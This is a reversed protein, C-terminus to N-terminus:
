LYKAALETLFTCAPCIGPLSRTAIVTHWKKGDIFISPVYDVSDLITSPRGSVFYGSCLRNHKSPLWKDRSTAITWRKRMSPLLLLLNQLIDFSRSHTQLNM